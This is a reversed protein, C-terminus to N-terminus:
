IEDVRAASPGASIPAGTDEPADRCAPREKQESRYFLLALGLTEKLNARGNSDL